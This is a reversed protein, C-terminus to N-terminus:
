FSWGVNLHVLPLVKDETTFGPSGVGGQAEPEVVVYRVGAQAEFTFGVGTAFKYGIFPGVTFGGAAAGVGAPLDEFNVYEELVEAGLQMGHRFNGLLYYRVQGGVDIETGSYETGAQDEITRTGAGLTLSVGLKPMVRYEFTFEVLPIVARLPAWMVTFKPLKKPPSSPEVAPQVPPPVPAVAAPATAEEPPPAPEPESQAAAASTWGLSWVLWAAVVLSTRKM